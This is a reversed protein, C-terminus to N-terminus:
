SELQLIYDVYHQAVAYSVNNKTMVFAIAQERTMNTREKQQLASLQLKILKNM